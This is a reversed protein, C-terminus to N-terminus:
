CAVMVLSLCDDFDLRFTSIVIKPGGGSMM